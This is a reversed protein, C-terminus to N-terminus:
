EQSYDKHLTIEKLKQHLIEPTEKLDFEMFEPGSGFSMRYLKDNYNMSMTEESGNLKGNPYAAKVTEYTDGIKIGKKTQIKDSTIVIDGIKSEDPYDWLMYGAVEGDFSFELVEMERGELGPRTSKQFDGKIDTISMGVKYDGVSPNDLDIMVKNEAPKEKTPAEKMHLNSNSPEEKKDECATFLLTAAIISSLIYKM